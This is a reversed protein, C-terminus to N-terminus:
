ESPASSSESLASSSGTSLDLLSLVTRLNRYTRIENLDVGMHIMTKAVSPNIGTLFCEAGLLRIAKAMKLFYDATATDMTDVATVDIIVSRASREVVASLLQDTIEASRASDIAGVLPLCVIGQWVEIVPTALERIATRQVEVLSVQDELEIEYASVRAHEAELTDIMENLGAYLSRLSSRFHWRKPDLRASYDGAVVNSLASLIDAISDLVEADTVQGLREM